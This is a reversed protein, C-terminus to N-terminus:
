GTGADFGADAMAGGVFKSELSGFVDMGEMVQVGGHEVEKTEIVFLENEVVVTNLASEGVDVSM